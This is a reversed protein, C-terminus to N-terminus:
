GVPTSRVCVAEGVRDHIDTRRSTVGEAVYDDDRGFSPIFATLLSLGALVAVAAGIITWTLEAGSDGNAAFAFDMGLFERTTEDGDATQLYIVFGVSLALLLAGCVILGFRRVFDM